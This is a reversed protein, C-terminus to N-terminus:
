SSRWWAWTGTTYSHTRSGQPHTQSVMHGPRAWQTHMQFLLSNCHIGRLNPLSSLHRTKNCDENFPRQWLTCMRSIQAVKIRDPCSCWEVSPGCFAAQSTFVGKPWNLLSICSYKVLRVRTNVFECWYSDVSLRKLNGNSAELKCKCHYEIPNM